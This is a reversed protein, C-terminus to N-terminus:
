PGPGARTSPPTSGRATSSWSSGTSSTAATASARPGTASASNRRGGAAPLGHAREVDRDYRFELPFHSGGAVREIVEDIEDRWRFRSRM